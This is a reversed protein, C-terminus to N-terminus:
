GASDAELVQFFLHKEGAARLGAQEVWYNVLFVPIWSALFAVFGVRLDRRWNAPQWGFDQRRVPASLALLAFVAIGQAALALARWHVAPLSLSDPRAALRAILQPLVMAVVFTAFVPVPPWAVPEQPTPELVPRGRWLRRLIFVWVGASGAFLLTAATKGITASDAMIRASLTEAATGRARGSAARI